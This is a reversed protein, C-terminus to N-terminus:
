LNMTILRGGCHGCSLMRRLTFRDTLGPQTRATGGAKRELLAARNEEYQAMSIYAPVDVTVPAEHKRSKRGGEKGYVWAGAYTTSRAINIVLSGTWAKAGADGLRHASPTPYGCANLYKAVAGAPEHAIRALIERVISEAIPDIALGNVRSRGNPFTEFSFTYGFPAFGQGTVKNAQAKARRGRKTNEAIIDRDLEARDMQQRQFSRFWPGSGGSMNPDVLQIDLERLRDLYAWGNSGRRSLRDMKPLALIQFEGREAAAFMKTVEPLDSRYGSASEDEGDVFQLHPPNVWDPHQSVLTDLAHRQAQLGYGTKSQELTSVRMYTAVVIM